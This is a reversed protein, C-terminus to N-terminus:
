LTDLAIFEIKLEIKVAVNMVITTETIVVIVEEVLVEEHQQYFHM